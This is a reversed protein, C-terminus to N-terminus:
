GIFNASLSSVGAGCSVTFYGDKVDGTASRPVPIYHPFSFFYCSVKYSQMNPLTITYNGVKGPKQTTDTTRYVKVEYNQGTSNSKFNISIPCIDESPYGALTLNTGTVTGSVVIESNVVTLNCTAQRTLNGANSSIQILYVDSEVYYPVSITLNSRFPQKSAPTGTQNSFEFITGNPGGSASLTASETKGEIYTVEVTIAANGGQVVACKDPSVAISFSFPESASQLAILYFDTAAFAVLVAVVAAAAFIIRNKKTIMTTSECPGM